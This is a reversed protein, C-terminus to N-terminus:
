DKIMSYECIRAVLKPIDYDKHVIFKMMRGYSEGRSCFEEVVHYRPRLTYDDFLIVTGPKACLLSYLFCAVRFRGDIMVLNVDLNKKEAIQWPSIIYSHYNKAGDNNIPKGWNGVTGIDCYLLDSNSSGNLKQKIATNWDKSSDVSIIHKAGLQQAHITSGGSGYELYCNANTVHKEFIALANKGLHPTFDKNKQIPDKLM